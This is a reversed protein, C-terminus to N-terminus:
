YAKIRLQNPFTKMLLVRECRAWSIQVHNIFIGPSMKKVFLGVKVLIPDPVTHYKCLFCCVNQQIYHVCFSRNEITLLRPFPPPSWSKFFYLNGRPPTSTRRGCSCKRLTVTCQKVCKYILDIIRLALM